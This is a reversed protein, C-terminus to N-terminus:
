ESPASATIRSIGRKSARWLTTLLLIMVMTGIISGVLYGGMGVLSSYGGHAMNNLVILVAIVKKWWPSLWGATLSQNAYENM